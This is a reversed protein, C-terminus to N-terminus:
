LMKEFTEAAVSLRRGNPKIISIYREPISDELPIHIIERNNVSSRAFIEPLFGIGLNEKVMLLLQNVTSAEMDPALIVGKEAFLKNYFGYTATDRALSILPYNKLDEFRVAREKLFGFETGGVLIENFSSLKKETLFDDTGTPTTVVAFDVLGNKVSLIAQPTSQNTVKVKIKPYMKRYKGILPLLLSYLATETAGISIVGEQLNKYLTLEEEGKQILKVASSIYKYLREGEATLTVGRNSRIFLTCGLETELNKITRTVNPQNSLLVNAAQTFNKYEAVYYFTKYYDYSIFM